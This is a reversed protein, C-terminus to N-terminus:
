LRVVEPDPNVRSTEDSVNNVGELSLLVAVLHVMEAFVLYNYRHGMEVCLLLSARPM